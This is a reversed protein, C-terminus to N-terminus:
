DLEDFDEMGGEGSFHQYSTSTSTTTERTKERAKPKIDRNPKTVHTISIKHPTAKTGIKTEGDSSDSDDSDVETIVIRKMKHISDANTHTPTKAINTTTTIGNNSTEQGGGKNTNSSTSAKTKKNLFGGKIMKKEKRTNAKKKNKRNVETKSNVNEGAKNEGTNNTKKGQKQVNNNGGTLVIKILNPIEINGCENSDMPIQLKSPQGHVGGKIDAIRLEKSIKKLIKNISSGGLELPLGLKAHDERLHQFAYMYSNGCSWGCKGNVRGQAVTAMAYPNRTPTLIFKVGVVRKLLQLEGNLDSYDNAQSFITPIGLNALQIM